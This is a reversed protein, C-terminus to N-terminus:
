SHRLYQDNGSIRAFGLFSEMGNMPKTLFAPMNGRRGTRNTSKVENHVVKLRPRIGLDFTEAVTDLGVKREVLYIDTIIVGDEKQAPASGLIEAVISGQEFNDAFDLRLLFPDEGDAMADMHKGGGAEVFALANGAIFVDAEFDLL